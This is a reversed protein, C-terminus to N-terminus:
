SPCLRQWFHSPRCGAGGGVQLGHVHERQMEHEDNNNKAVDLPQLGHDVLCMPPPECERGARHQATDGSTIDDAGIAAFM